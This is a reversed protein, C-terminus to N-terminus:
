PNQGPHPKGRSKPIQTKPQIWISSLSSGPLTGKKEAGRSSAIIHITEFYPQFGPLSDIGKKSFRGDNM